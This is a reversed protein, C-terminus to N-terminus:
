HLSRRLASSTLTPKVAGVCGGFAAAFAGIVLALASILVGKAVASMTEPSVRAAAAPPPTLAPSPAAMGLEPGFESAPAAASAATGTTAAAAPAQPAAIGALSSFGGSLLAGAGAVALIAVILVSAAWAILGHWMATGEKPDGCLRGAALGGAFAAVIGTGGWWLSAAWSFEQATMAAGATEPIAVAGIGVGLMNLVLQMVLAFFVGSAVAGMAVRNLLVTRLDEAPTVPSLHPSDYDGLNRPTPPADQQKTPM